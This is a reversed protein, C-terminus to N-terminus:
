AAQAPPAPNGLRLADLLRFAQGENVDDVQLWRGDELDIWLRAGGPHWWGGRRSAGGQLRKAGELQAPAPCPVAEVRHRGEWRLELRGAAYNWRAGALRLLTGGPAQVADGQARVTSAWPEEPAWVGQLVDTRAAGWSLSGLDALDTTGLKLRYASAPAQDFTPDIPIWRGGVEVEVWFHLGLSEGFAMWGTVGRAPVGLRRLLAVALVGHQACAGEPHRAVEQASAFGVTYNKDRIWAYVFATVRQALEWRSAGPAAALRQLLGDFVPDHFQALPTAALYPADAASPTGTVPPEAAAAPGPAAAQLLRLRGPGLRRQQPDEPLGPDGTGTWRVTLEPLWLLFPHPPLAKVTREFLGSGPGQAKGQAPAALEARQYLLPIGAMSGQHKVEGASPSLWADMEEVMGGENSRGHYRVTDPFGPLPDPGVPRLDLETWQQTPFSYTTQRLPRRGRAAARLGDELDGPWLQAGPPVDVTRAAGDKLSLRLKGPERPSWSAQGELPEQSLSLTWTFTLSGDAAKRATQRLDQRLDAGMRELHSWEHSEFVQGAGSVTESAGGVEQGAIWQRYARTERGRLGLPALLALLLLTRPLLRMADETRWNVPM